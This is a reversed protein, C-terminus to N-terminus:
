NSVAPPELKRLRDKLTSDLYDQGLQFSANMWGFGERTIYDFKTGVNGYEAFVEHSGTIVDIKEPVIGQYDAANKAIAYLWRYALRAAVEDLGYDRLGEWALFQHPAWGYPFDWQRAPRDPGLPGRSVETSAALGALRELKPILNKVLSKVQSPEAAKAWVPYLATASIYDSKRRNKLDYDFYIGQKSDWLYKQIAALRKEAALHFREREANRDSMNSLDSEYRYLLSNLDVTLFDAARLDFRYTTDHGSERVARDHIYFERLAQPSLGRIATDYHGPEVEPCPGIDLGSYRSLGSAQHLRPASMWVNEYERIAADIARRLWKGHKELRREAAPTADNVARILSTLFPPQSRSLYYSRNANLIMGYNEIEYVLHDVLNKALELRGDHILGRGIFYSDWGYMENFRGGPVVFPKGPALALLGHKGNLSKIYAPTIKEPLRIVKLKLDPRAAAITKFGKLSLSDAYPVYLYHYGDDTKTKEDALAKSLGQEDLRRTLGNWYYTRIMRSVRDSVAENLHLQELSAVRDGREAALVLEQALASLAATSKVALPKRDLGYILNGEVDKLQFSRDGQDKVTIKTDRDTDEDRLLKELTPAVELQTRLPLESTPTSRDATSACGSLTVVLMFYRLTM